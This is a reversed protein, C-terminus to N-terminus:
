QEGQSANHMQYLVQALANAKNATIPLKPVKSAVKGAGYAATGVVRPMALPFAALASPNTFAAYIAALDEGKGVIGRPSWESMAQGALAPMIDEGGHKALEEALKVRQGYNTQVNNRTLSQLKRMATDVSAKEGLSLSKQIQTVLDSAESYDKMVKDYTPAQDAITKRTSNYIDQVASRATRQEYPISELIGGIKQKLADMGEPTHYEAPDLNKWKNIENQAEKVKQAAIKDKIQGKFSVKADANALSQDINSFDLVSKDNSVDVMGSRYDNSKQVRMNTLANKATDLVETPDAEKTLNKYFTQNGKKGANYAAKVTDGGTGTTVGLAGALTNGTGKLAANGVVQISKLPNTTESATALMDGLKSGKTLAAGGGLVTSVDAMVEAPHEALARKFGEYSGYRDKYFKNMADASSTEKAHIQQATQKGLVAEDARNLANTVSQPLVKALEGAGTQLLSQTTDIPHMIAHGAGALVHGVDPVFNLAANSVAELGTYNRQKPPMPKATKNPEDWVVSKADLQPTEDWVINTSMIQQGM